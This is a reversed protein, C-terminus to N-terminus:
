ATLLFEIELLKKSGRYRVGGIRISGIEGTSQVHRELCCNVEWGPIRVLKLRSVAEPVPFFDYIGHGFHGEAEQREMEFELMEAGEAIKGNARSEILRMEEESPRRDCQVTLRGHDGRVHVSTTLRAGLVSVVAGKLVHLASHTRVEPASLEEGEVWRSKV